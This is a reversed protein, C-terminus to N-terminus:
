PRGRLKALVGKWRWLETGTPWEGGLIIGARALAEAFLRTSLKGVNRQRAVLARPVFRFESLDEMGGERMLDELSDLASPRISIDRLAQPASPTRIAMTQAAILRDRLENGLKLLAAIEAHLAPDIQPAVKLIRRMAANAAAAGARAHRLDDEPGSRRPPTTM